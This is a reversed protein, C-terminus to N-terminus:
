RITHLNVGLQKSLDHISPLKDGIELTGDAILWTIQERIQQRLTKANTRDIDLYKILEM